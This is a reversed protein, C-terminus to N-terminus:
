QSPRSASVLGTADNQISSLAEDSNEEQSNTPTGLTRAAVWSGDLHTARLM